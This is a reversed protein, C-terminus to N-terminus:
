KKRRILAVAGIALLSMTAPEPIAGPLASNYNDGLSGLDLIDVVGDGNSDGVGWGGVTNYGDGLVGLDLISVQGDLNFDAFFTGTVFGFEEGADVISTDVLQEILFALDAADVGGIGDVNFKADTDGDRIARALEDIDAADIIGDTGATLTTGM